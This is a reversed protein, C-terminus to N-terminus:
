PRRAILTSAVRLAEGGPRLGFRGDAERALADGRLATSDDGHARNPRRATRAEPM